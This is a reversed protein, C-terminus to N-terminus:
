RIRPPQAEGGLRGPRNKLPPEVTETQSLDHREGGFSVDPAAPDHLLDAHMAVRDLVEVVRTEFGAIWESGM